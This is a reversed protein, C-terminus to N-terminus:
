RVNEKFKVKDKRPEKAIQEKYKRLEKVLSPKEHGERKVVKASYEKVVASIADIDKAKFFVTYRPPDEVKDKVFAFDVGYKNAIRKFTWMSEGRVDMSTAGQGQRVLQKVTQKGHKPGFLQHLTKTAAFKLFTKLMKWLVKATPRGAYRFAFRIVDKSVEENM